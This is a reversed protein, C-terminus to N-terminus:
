RSLAADLLELRDQGFFPEGDLIYWPAGFVGREIAEETNAQYQSHCQGDTSAEILAKGKLGCADAIARLTDADAIDKDDAWVARLLAHSLKVDDAGTKQAAIILRSAAEGPVPFYAPQLNIPLNRVKGWRELEILRYKQRAPPRQPLPVGGTEGFVTMLDCPRCELRAGHKRAIVELKASGLYTFPSQVAFFYEITRSM